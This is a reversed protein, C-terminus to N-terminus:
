GNRCAAVSAVSLIRNGADGVRYVRRSRYAALMATFKRRGIAAPSADTKEPRVASGVAFEAPSAHACITSRTGRSRGTRHDHSLM